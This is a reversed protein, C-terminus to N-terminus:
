ERDEIIISAMDTVHSPGTRPIEEIIQDLDSLIDREGTDVRRLEFVKGDRKEVRLSEGPSLSEEPARHRLERGSIIKTRM